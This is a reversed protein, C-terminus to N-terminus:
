QALIDKHGFEIATKLAIKLMDLQDNVRSKLLPLEGNTKAGSLALSDAKWRNKITQVVENFEVMGNRIRDASVGGRHSEWLAKITDYEVRERPVESRQAPLPSIEDEEDSEEDSTYDSSDTDSGSDEQKVSPSPQGGGRV